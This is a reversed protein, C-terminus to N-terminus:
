TAATAPCAWAATSKSWGRGRWSGCRTLDLMGTNLHPAAATAAFMAGGKSKVKEMAALLAGEEDNFYVAAVGDDDITMGNRSRREKERKQKSLERIGERDLAEANM